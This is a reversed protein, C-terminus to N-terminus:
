EYYVKPIDGFGDWPQIDSTLIQLWTHHKERDNDNDLIDFPLQYNYYYYLMIGAYIKQAPCQTNKLRDHYMNILDKVVEKKYINAIEPDKNGYLLVGINSVAHYRWIKENEM